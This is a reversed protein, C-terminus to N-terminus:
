ACVMAPGHQRGPAGGMPIGIVDLLELPRSECVVLRTRGVGTASLELAVRSAPEGDAQWWFALRADGDEPARVEEVWGNRPEGDLVFRAEGGPELEWDIEDALWSQLVAPETVARWLVELAVPLELEREISDSM